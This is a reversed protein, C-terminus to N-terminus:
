TISGDPDHRKLFELTLRVYDEPRYEYTNHGCSPLVALAGNSLNRYFSVGQEVEFYSSRDPYIVLSPCRIKRLVPRLDFRGTGYAGGGRRFQEFFPEANDGHWQKLKDKLEPELDKFQKKFDFTNKEIMTVKSYCQTSSTILSEVRDPFKVTYDAGVVGGECQGIIHFSRIRLFDMLLAMDNVSDPRFKNSLYFRRFDKGQESEGYGRRDYMVIKYGEKVLGPFIRKWIKTCGFGHHLLVIIGKTFNNEHIEYYIKRGDPTEFIM